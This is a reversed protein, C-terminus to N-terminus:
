VDLGPWRDGILSQDLGDVELVKRRSSAGVVLAVRSRPVDLARAVLRVLAANAAGNVPAATVRVALNGNVV